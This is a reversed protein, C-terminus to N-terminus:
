LDFSLSLSFSLIVFNYSSFECSVALYSKIAKRSACIESKWESRNKAYSDYGINILSLSTGCTIEYKETASLRSRCQM